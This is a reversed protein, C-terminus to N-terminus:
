TLPPSNLAECGAEDSVGDNTEFRPDHRTKIQLEEREYTINRQGETSLLPGVSDSPSQCSSCEYRQTISAATGSEYNQYVKAIQFVLVRRKCSNSFRDWYWPEPSHEHPDDSDVFQGVEEPGIEKRYTQCRWTVYCIPPRGPVRVLGTIVCGDGPPKKIGPPWGYFEAQGTPDIGSTSKNRLFSYINKGGRENIPDRSLWRGSNPNLYRYGYYAYDTEDDVVKSSFRVPNVTAMTGSARITQGFPDYEYRASASGTRGDVLAMVNGNGDYAAFHSGAQSGSHQRFAILGGVGGAGQMSGSLDLGWLFSRIIAANTGNFAGLLNWGDYLFREHLVRTWASGTWNSVVKSYRRGQSDYAFQLSKRSGSPGSSHSTMDILRNEADWKNTWRGDSTLNGDLDYAYAEATKPLFLNGTNTQNTGTLSAINTVAQWVATSANNVSLEKQFYEGKRYASQSNVTVSANANAIGLVNLYAPVDRSSYQNLSNATYSASRLAGGADDGGAKTSTRNGIDDFAYEYQQGAVPTWDSWYRKGSVVQGLKDYEYIWFSGDDLNVRTRQNADNYSYNFDIPTSLQSGSSSVSQLRNLNDFTKTTTMRTTTNSRYTVQSILPSNALYSYGGQYTGDSVNTIRSAGDFAFSHSLLSTNTAYWAHNTRRQYQDYTFRLNQGIMAGSSNTERLLQGTANYVLFRSGSGDIINTSRGLRDFNNTVAPTTDSYTTAFIEGVSNTHYTTVTGRAWTRTRLRGGPTYSYFPGKGDDYVKNTLFGRYGDYRWATTAKGSDTAFTKWTIMNTRRGQPDYAYQVPYNRSGYTKKLEGTPHYENTVSTGDPLVTRTVRGVWDHEYTTTQASAGNGPPPTITAVVRDADNYTYFTTGNRADTAAYQRGHEDYFYDVRSLQTGASNKRTVNQLLGNAYHSISLSGDPATNTSYLTGGGAYKTRSQNTLGHRSNWSILGDVSTDAMGLLNSTAINNTSWVYTAVRQVNVSGNNVVSRVTQQIRDTGNTNIIGDRNVDTAVISQEGKGNYAYLTTVGDPDVTKVLQGKINYFSQRTSGDSYVTKYDRGVMDKYTKTWESTDAGSANLKIEKTYLRWIGADQETGYEYRVPHVASGTIRALQGDRYYEEIRTSGDSYTTTRIRQYNTIVESFSTKHGLANTAAIQNGLADYGFTGQVIQSGNTGIRISKLLRGSADLVNTLVIGNERKAVQKKLKDHVFTTVTGDRNTITDPGGCCGHDVWSYTGDIYTTKKPRGYKDHETYIESQNTFGSIVDVAIRSLINGSRDRVSISKSGDVISSKAGNPTGRWTINTRYMQNTGYMVPVINTEIFIGYEYIEMVGNPYEISKLRNSHSGTDYWKYTTVLNDPDDWTAGPDVCVIERKEFPFLLKYSRAVERGQVMEVTSRPIQFYRRGSDGAGPVANSGYRHQTSRVVSLDTTPSQNLFGRYLNTTFRNTEYTYFDWRGDEHVVQKLLGTTSLTLNTYYEFLNTRQISGTGNIREILMEGFAYTQYKRTQSAELTNTGRVEVTTTRIDGTVTTSKSEKRLGGGSVLDWGNTRWEYDSIVGDGDTIRLRNTSASGDPNEVSISSLPSGSVTYINDISKNTSVASLPYIDIIYKSANVVIVNALGDPSRVQRLGASNTLVECYTNTGTSFSIIAGNTSATYSNTNEGFKFGLSAPTSLLSAPYKEHISLAGAAKGFAHRGM